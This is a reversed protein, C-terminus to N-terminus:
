RRSGALVARLAAARLPGTPEDVHRFYGYLTYKKALALFNKALAGIEAATYDTRRLRYAIHQATYIEPTALEDSEAICLACDHERLAAYVEECFWSEHRFEFAAPPADAIGRLMALFKTLRLVDMKFNPPLQFLILGMKEAARFPELAAIFEHVASESDHLRQFHTIRQPAKFSFRFGAPTVNLWNECMAATPLARFTYNVEVSNLQTGYYELFKKQSVGEPYFGPKWTPYAWGSTGIFVPVATSAPTSISQPTPRSSSTSRTTLTHATSLFKPRSTPNSGVVDAAVSRREAV